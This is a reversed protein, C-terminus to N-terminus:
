GQADRLHSMFAVHLCLTKPHYWWKEEAMPLNNHKTKQVLHLLYNTSLIANYWFDRVKYVLIGSHSFCTPASLPQLLLLHTHRMRWFWGGDRLVCTTSLLHPLEAGSYHLVPTADSFAPLTISVDTEPMKVNWLSEPHQRDETILLFYAGTTCM